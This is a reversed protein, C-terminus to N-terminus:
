MINSFTRIMKTRATKVDWVLQPNIQLNTRNTSKSHGIKGASLSGIIWRKLLAQRKMPIKSYKRERINRWYFLGHYMSFSNQLCKQHFWFINSIERKRQVQDNKENENITTPKCLMIKEWQIIFLHGMKELFSMVEYAENKEENFSSVEFNVETKLLIAWIATLYKGKKESIELRHTWIGNRSSLEKM